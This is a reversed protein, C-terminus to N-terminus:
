RSMQIIHMQKMRVGKQRHRLRRRSGSRLRIRFRLDEVRDPHKSDHPNHRIQQEESRLLLLGFFMSGHEFGHARAILDDGAAANDGDDDGDFIFGQGDAGRIGFEFDGLGGNGFDDLTAAFGAFGSKSEHVTIVEPSEDEDDENDQPREILKIRRLPPVEQQDEALLGGGPVGGKGSNELLRLGQLLGHRLFGIVIQRLGDAGVVDSGIERGEAGFLLQVWCSIDQVAQLAFGGAADPQAEVQLAAGGEQHFHVGVAEGVGGIGIGGENM